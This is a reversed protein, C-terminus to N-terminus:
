CLDANDAWCLYIPTGDKAVAWYSGKFAQPEYGGGVGLYHPVTGDNAIETTNLLYVTTGTDATGLDSTNVAQALSTDIESSAAHIPNATYMGYRPLTGALQFIGEGAAPGLRVLAWQTGTGSQITLIQAAGTPGSNLQTADNNKIDAYSDDSSNVNVQVPCCGYFYARGIQGSKIPEACIAFFGTYGPTKPMVGKFVLRNKFANLDSSPDLLSETDIGLIEFRKRDDGSNNQIWAMGAGLGVDLADQGLGQRARKYAVTADTVANYWRAKISLPDGTAVKKM